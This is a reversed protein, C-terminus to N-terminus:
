CNYLFILVKKSQSEFRSRKLYSGSKKKKPQITNKQKELSKQHEPVTLFHGSFPLFRFSILHSSTARSFIKLTPHGKENKSILFFNKKKLIDLMFNEKLIDLQNKWRKRAHCGFVSGFNFFPDSFLFVVSFAPIVRSQMLQLWFEKM